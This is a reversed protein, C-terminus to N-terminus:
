QSGLPAHPRAHVTACAEPPAFRSVPQALDVDHLEQEAPKIKTQADSPPPVGVTAVAPHLGDIELADAPPFRGELTALFLTARRSAATIPRAYVDGDAVIYAM